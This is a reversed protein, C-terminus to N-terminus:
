NPITSFTNCLMINEYLNPKEQFFNLIDISIEPSTSHFHNSNWPPIDVSLRRKVFINWDGKHKTYYRLFFVYNKEVKFTCVKASLFKRPHSIFELKKRTCLSKRFAFKSINQTYLSYRIPGSNVIRWPLFCCKKIRM